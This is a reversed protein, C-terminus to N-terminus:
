EADSNRMKRSIDGLVRALMLSTSITAYNVMRQQEYSPPKQFIIPGKEWLGSSRRHLAHLGRQLGFRGDTMPDDSM